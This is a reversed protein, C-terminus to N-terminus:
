RLIRIKKAQFRRRIPPRDSLSRFFFPRPERQEERFVFFVGESRRLVFGIPFLVPNLEDLGERAWTPNPLGLFDPDKNGM